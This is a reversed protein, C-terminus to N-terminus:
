DKNRRPKECLESLMVAMLLFLVYLFFHVLTDSIVEYYKCLFILTQLMSLASQKYVRTDLFEITESTQNEVEKSIIHYTSAAM